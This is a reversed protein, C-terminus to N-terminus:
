HFGVVDVKVNSVTYDEGPKTCSNVLKATLTHQASAGSEMLEGVAFPMTVTTSAPTTSALAFTTPIGDVAISLANGFSGTCGAPIGLRM